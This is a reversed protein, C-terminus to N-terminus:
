GRRLGSEIMAEYIGQEEYVANMTGLDGHGRFATVSDDIEVATVKQGDFLKVDFGALPATQIFDRVTDDTHMSLGICGDLYVVQEVM